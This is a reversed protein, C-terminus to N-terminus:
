FPQGERPANQKEIIKERKQIFKETVRHVADRGVVLLQNILEPDVEFRAAEFEKRTSERLVDRWIRGQDDKWDFLSTYRLIERYLSLAERRTTLIKAHQEPPEDKKRTKTKDLSKEILEEVEGDTANFFIPSYARVSSTM